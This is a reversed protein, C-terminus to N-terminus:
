LHIVNGSLIEEYKEDCTVFIVQNKEAFKQILKCSAAVRSPDMDTFPDDFVALGDGNPFLFELMALRFALSITDKTGESLISYTLAHDNSSLSVLLQEDMSTLMLSGDTIMELYKRFKEEIGEIPNNGTQSKLERFVKYINEWHYYEEKQSLLFEQKERLEEAYEEASKESLTRQAERLEEELDECTNTRNGIETKLKEEYEDPDSIAKYKEPIEDANEIKQWIRALEAELSEISSKLCDMSEYKQILSSLVMEQGGIFSDLNNSKCLSIIENEVEQQTAIGEPVTDNLRKLEEFSVSNLLSDLKLKRNEFDNKASLYNQSCEELEEISKVKYVDYIKAMEAKANQIKQRVTEVDVGKPSLQMQMIGPIVVEIAETIEFTDNNFAIEKGSSLGTVSIESDGLKRIRASLNMGSLTAEERRCTKELERLKKIDKLDVERQKEFICKSATLDKYLIEAKLYLDHIVAYEKKQKLVKAAELNRSCEPWTKFDDKRVKLNDKLDSASKSLLRLNEIMGKYKLFTLNEEEAKKKESLAAMLANKCNEVTQEANKARNMQDMVEDVGYYAKVITGAGNAWANKYSARKAGGEPADAAFDWRGRREDLKNVIKKEILELSVGGTELAAKSLVNTLDDKTSALPDTSKQISKMITEVALQNRKQSAFVIENYVGARHLLIESLIERITEPNKIITKDPQTLRCSGEGKEWEKKLKYKGNETEFVLCGDIVDGQIGGLQKPFYKEIFDTDTRGNIKSDKFLIQYILDVMTSKGSENAGVILNLGKEFEIEKDKIGAFQECEVSKIRM